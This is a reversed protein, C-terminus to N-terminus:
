LQLNADLKCQATVNHSIWAYTWIALEVSTLRVAYSVREMDGDWPRGFGGYLGVQSTMM